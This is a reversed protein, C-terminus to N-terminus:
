RNIKEIDDKLKLAELSGSFTNEQLNLTGMHGAVIHGTSNGSDKFTCNKVTINKAERLELQVGFNNDFTCNEFVVEGQHITKVSTRGQDACAHVTAGFPANGIPGFGCNSISTNKVVVKDIYDSELWHLEPAIMIGIPRRDVLCNEVTGNAKILIGRARGNTFSTNKIEFGNCMENENVVWGPYEMVPDKNLVVKYWQRSNFTWVGVNEVVDVPSIYDSIPEASVVTAEDLFEYERSYFRLVDGPLFQQRINWVTITYTNKGLKEGARSYVGHINTGDDGNAEVTCDIVSFSKRLGNVHFGTGSISTLRPIVGGLPTPGPVIKVQQYISRNTKNGFGESVAVDGSHITVDNLNFGDSEEIYFTNAKGSGRFVFYDGINAHQAINFVKASNIRWRNGELHEIEKGSFSVSWADTSLLGAATYFDGAVTETASFVCPYAPDIWLDFYFGEPDFAIIEGQTYVPIEYDVTLNEVKLNYGNNVYFGFATKRQFLLTTNNGKVTFNRMNSLDIHCRAASPVRFIGEPLTVESAGSNYADSIMKNIDVDERIIGKYVPSYEGPATKEIPTQCKDYFRKVLVATEARTALGLPNFSGDTNGTIVGLAVAKQVADQTWDSIRDEDTFDKKGAKVNGRLGEWLRVLVVTMEERTIPQDPFIRNNKVMQAPIIDRRVAETVTKSFWQEEAVDDFTKEYKLARIHPVKLALTLFEARTVSAEPDFLTESKGSIIGKQYLPMVYNRAWHGSLDTFGAAGVRDVTWLPLVLCLSLLVAMTKKM